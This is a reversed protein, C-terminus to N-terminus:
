QPTTSETVERSTNTHYGEADSTVGQSMIRLSTYVHVSVHTMGHQGQAQNHVLGLRSSGFGAEVREVHGVIHRLLEELLDELEVQADLVM